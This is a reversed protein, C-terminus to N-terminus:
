RPAALAGGTMAQAVGTTGPFTIPLGRLRRAALYAFAQAELFDTSWGIEDASVVETQLAARLGAMLYPNKAGGGGVIWRRPPEPAWRLALRIAGVTFAALTAAADEVGLTAVMRHSFADRDLSKPPSTAFYPHSLMWGVLDEDAVGRAATAGDRDLREGRREVLLDNLLANGPGTDFGLLEDGPGILTVNAVGGINLVALPLGYGSSEALARHFVPVLPAGQGGAAVDAARFDYVVPIGLRKALASGDGIQVTLRDEPRHLVTQGHFGVAAIDEPRLGERALLAEVAEAHIRTVFAEAETLCGPRQGRETVSQRAEEKARVLLKTESESYDIAHTGGVIEVHGNPSAVVKIGHGDTEVLAADVGDMSTGSMLGIFRRM